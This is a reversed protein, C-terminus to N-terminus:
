AARVRLEVEATSCDLRIFEILTRIARKRVVPDASMYEDVLSLERIKSEKIRAQLRVFANTQGELHQKSADLEKVQQTLREVTQAWAEREVSETATAERMTATALAAKLKGIENRLQELSQLRRQSENDALHRQLEQVALSRLSDDSLLTAAIDDIVSEIASARVYRSRHSCEPV